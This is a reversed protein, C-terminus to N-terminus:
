AGGLSKVPRPPAVPASLAAFEDLIERAVRDLDHHAAVYERAAASLHRRLPADELARALQAALQLDDDDDFLLGNAEDRIIDVNGSVRSVVPCLGSAMAELLANSCGEGFSPLCFVGAQRHLSPIDDVAGLFHVNRLRHREVFQQMEAKLPGDGALLLRYKGQRNLRQWARLLVYPNKASVLRAVWLVTRAREPSPEGDPQYRRLDVGNGISHIAQSDCGLSELEAAAEASLALFRRNRLVLWKLLWSGKAAVIQRVDGAPGTSAPMVMSPKGLLPGALGTAVAEWPIQGDLVVDFRRAHWLLQWALSAIYSLGFLPGLPVSRIVRRIEVGDLIEMRPLGPARRTFVVPEHGWHAWRQALQLM